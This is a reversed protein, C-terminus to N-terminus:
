LVVQLIGDDWVVLNLPVALTNMIMMAGACVELLTYQDIVPSM